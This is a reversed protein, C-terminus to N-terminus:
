ERFYISTTHPGFQLILNISRRFDQGLNSQDIWIQWLPRRLVAIPSPVRQSLGFRPHSSLLDEFREALAALDPYVIDHDPEADRRGRRPAVQPKEFPLAQGDGAVAPRGM